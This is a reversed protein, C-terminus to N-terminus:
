WSNTCSDYSISIVEKTQVLLIFMRHIFRLESLNSITTFSNKFSGFTSITIFCPEKFGWFSPNRWNRWIALISGMLTLGAINGRNWPASKNDEPDSSNFKSSDESLVRIRIVWIDRSRIVKRSNIQFQMINWCTGCYKIHRSRNIFNM